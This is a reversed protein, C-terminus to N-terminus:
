NAQHEYLETISLGYFYRELLILIGTQLNDCVIPEYKNFTISFNNDELKIILPYNICLKKIYKMLDEFEFNLIGFYQGDITIYKRDNSENQNLHYHLLYVAISEELTYDMHYHEFIWDLLNYDGNQYESKNEAILPPFEKMITEGILIGRSNLLSTGLDQKGYTFLVANEKTIEFYMYKDWLDYAIEIFYKNSEKDYILSLLDGDYRDYVKIKEMKDINM